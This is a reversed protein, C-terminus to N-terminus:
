IIRAVRAIAAILIAAVLVWLIRMSRRIQEDRATELVERAVMAMLELQSRAVVQFAPDLWHPDDSLAPRIRPDALVEDIDRQAAIQASEQTYGRVPRVTCKERLSRHYMVEPLLELVLDDM